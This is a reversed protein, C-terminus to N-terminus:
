IQIRCLQRKGNLINDFYIFKDESSYKPHFDCRKEEQFANPIFNSYLTSAKLSNIDLKYLSQKRFFDPYTDTIVTNEDFFVPHGDTYKATILKKEGKLSIKYYGEVGNDGRIYGFINNDETWTLHSVMGSKILISVEFRDECNSVLYLRDHRKGKVTFREIFIFKDGLKNPLLHNFVHNAEESHRHKIIDKPKLIFESTGEFTVYKIYPEQFFKNVEYGYESGYYALNSYSISLYGKSFVENYPESLVKKTVHLNDVGNNITCIVAQLTGEFSHNYIFCNENIWNLKAGQQLNFSTVAEVVTFKQTLLNGLVIEVEDEAIVRHFIILDGRVPSGGYYGYFNDESINFHEGVSWAKESPKTKFKGICSGVFYYLKKLSRKLKPNSGLSRAIYRIM